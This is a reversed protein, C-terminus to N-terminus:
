LTQSYQYYRKLFNYCKKGNKCIVETCNNNPYVKVNAKMLKDSTKLNETLGWGAVIMTRDEYLSNPNTHLCIANIKPGFTVAEELKLLAIDPNNKLDEKLGRKYKPYVYIRELFVFNTTLINIEVINEGLVVATDM